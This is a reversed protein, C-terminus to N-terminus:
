QAVPASSLTEIGNLLSSPSRAVTPWDCLLLPFRHFPLPSFYHWSRNQSVTAYALPWDVARGGSRPFLADPHVRMQLTHLSPPSSPFLWYRSILWSDEEGLFDVGVRM